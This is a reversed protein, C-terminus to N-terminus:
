QWGARATSLPLVSRLDIRLDFVQELTRQSEPQVQLVGRAQEFWGWADRLASRGASKLGAQWLYGVAKDGLEAM